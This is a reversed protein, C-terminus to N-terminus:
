NLEISENIDVFDIFHKGSSHNKRISFKTKSSLKEVDIDPGFIWFVRLNQIAQNEEEVHILKGCDCIGYIANEKFHEPRFNLAKGEYDNKGKKYGVFFTSICSALLIFVVILTIVLVNKNM